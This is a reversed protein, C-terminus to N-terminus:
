YPNDRGDNVPPGEVACATHIYGHEGEPDIASIYDSNTISGGCRFCVMPDDAQKTEGMKALVRSHKFRKGKNKACAKHMPFGTGVEYVTDLHVEAMAEDCLSCFLVATVDAENKERKVQDAKAMADLAKDNNRPTWGQPFDSPKDRQNDDILVTLSATLEFWLLFLLCCGAHALHHIGTEEDVRQGMRWSTIHRLMAAYYRNIPDDVHKWNDPSYKTAGFTLVKVIESVPELPLLDWRAKGSDHKKGTM